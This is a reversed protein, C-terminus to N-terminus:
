AGTAKFIREAAEKLQILSYDDANFYLAAECQYLLAATQQITEEAVGAEKMQQLLMERSISQQGKYKKALKDTVLRQLQRYPEKDGADKINIQQLLQLATPQPVTAPEKKAVRKGKKRKYFLYFVISALLVVPVLWLISSGNNKQPQIRNFFSSKEKAVVQLQLPASSVMKYKKQVPDFFSFNVPAFSYNGISDATFHYAFAKTGSVPVKNKQLRDSEKADFGTIGVPWSVVPATLDM